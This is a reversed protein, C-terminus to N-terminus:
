VAELASLKVKVISALTLQHRALLAAILNQYVSRADAKRGIRAYLDALWVHVDILEPQFRILKRWVAMTKEPRGDCEFAEAAKRYSSIAAFVDGKRAYLDGLRDATAADDPRAAAVKELAAIADDIRGADAAASVAVAVRTLSQKRTTLM